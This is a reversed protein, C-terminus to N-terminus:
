EGAELTEPEVPGPPTPEPMPAGRDDVPAATAARVAPRKAAAQLRPLAVGGVAFGLGIWAAVKPSVNGLDYFAAVKAAAEGVGAAERETISDVGARACVLDGVTRFAGAIVSALMAADLPEAEPGAAGDDEATAGPLPEPEPFPAALVHPAPGESSSEDESQPPSPLPPNKPPQQSRGPLIVTPEM